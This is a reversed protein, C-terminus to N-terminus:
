KGGKEAARAADYEALEITNRQRGDPTYQRDYMETDKRAQIDDQVQAKYSEDDSRQTQECGEADVGLVKFGEDNVFTTQTTTQQELKKKELEEILQKREKQKKKFERRLEAGIPINLTAANTNSDVTTRASPKPLNRTREISKTKPRFREKTRQFLSKRSKKSSIPKVSNRRGSTNYVATKIPSIAGDNGPVIKSKATLPKVQSVNQEIIPLCTVTSKNPEPNFNLATVLQTRPSTVKQPLSESPTPQQSKSADAPEQVESRRTKVKQCGNCCIQYFILSVIGGVFIGSISEVFLLLVLWENSLPIDRKKPKSTTTLDEEVEVEADTVEDDADGEPTMTPKVKGIQPYRTFEKEFHAAGEDVIPMPLVVNLEQSLKLTLACEGLQKFYLQCLVYGEALHLKPSACDISPFPQTQIVTTNKVLGEIYIMGSHISARIDTLPSNLTQGDGWRFYDDDDNTEYMFGISKLENARSNHYLLSFGWRKCHLRKEENGFTFDFSELASQSLTPERGIYLPTSFESPILITTNLADIAVTEHLHEPIESANKVIIIGTKYDVLASEVYIFSSILCLIGFM